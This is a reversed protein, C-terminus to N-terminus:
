EISSLIQYVDTIAVYTQSFNFKTVILERANKSLKKAYIHDSFMKKMSDKISNIADEERPYIVEATEGVKVFESLGGYPSSIVPVSLYMAEGVSLGFGEDHVSSNVYVDFLKYFKAIETQHELFIVRDAVKLAEAQKRLKEYYIKDRDSNPSGIIMLRAEDIDLKSFAKITFEYGKGESIRGAMGYVFKGELHYDQKLTMSEVISSENLQIPLPVVKRGYAGGRLFFNAYHKDMLFHSSFLLVDVPFLSAIYDVWGGIPGHQFWVRRTKMFLSAFSMIAQTYGMTSHIIGFKNKRLFERIEFLASLLSNLRSFRFQNRLIYVDCKMSRLVNALEGDKFLLYTVPDKNEAHMRAVNLIFKEAGGIFGNASVYLIKKM